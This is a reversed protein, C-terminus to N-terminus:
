NFLETQVESLRKTATEIGGKGSRIDVGCFRRGTKLSVAGVTGSGCFPDLVESDPKAFSRVFFEVLKEPFSAENDHALPHGMHGGGVRCKIVNGPNALKPPLYAQERMGGADAKTHIKAGAEVKEAFSRKTAFVHSPKPKPNRLVGDTGRGGGTSKESGGWQNRRTGNSLHHSMAGGPAWKPPHGMSTNDSWSLPLRDPFAFAYIPEWDRRHYHTSGSGAIGVRSFVYPSPGCVIGHHRTLDAVLWEVVPSYKWQRVKGAANVFVLGDTIRCMEVVRPIMWDVWAQGKVKFRLPLYLRADEYPPSTFTM